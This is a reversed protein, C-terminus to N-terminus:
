FRFDFEFAFLDWPVPGVSSLYARSPQLFVNIDGEHAVVRKSVADRTLTGFWPRHPLNPVLM